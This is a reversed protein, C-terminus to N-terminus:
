TSIHAGSYVEAVKLIFIVVTTLILILSICGGTKSRYEQTSNFSLTLSHPKLDQQALAQSLKGKKSM